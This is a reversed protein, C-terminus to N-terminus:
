VDLDAPSSPDDMTTDNKKVMVYTIIGGIIVGIIVYGVPVAWEKWDICGESTVESTETKITKTTEEKKKDEM